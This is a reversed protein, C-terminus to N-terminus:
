LKPTPLRELEGDDTLFFFTLTSALQGFRELWRMPIERDNGFVIFTTPAGTKELLWVHEAIISFKAPPLGVGDVRGFYTGDGVVQRDPSVFAFRKRVGTVMNESLVVGFHNALANRALAEFREAPRMDIAWRPKAALSAAADEGTRFVWTAGSRAGRIRGARVLEQTLMYVTQQSRIGLDRALQGNTAGDPAISWLYDLLREAYTM